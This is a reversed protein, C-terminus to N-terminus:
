RWATWTASGNTVKKIGFVPSFYKYERAALHAAAKDTWAVRAMIGKGDEWTLEEIWGAARHGPPLRVGSKCAPM